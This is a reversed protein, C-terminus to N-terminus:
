CRALVGTVCRVTDGLIGRVLVCKVRSVAAAV